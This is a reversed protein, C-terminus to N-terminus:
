FPQSEEIRDEKKEKVDPRYPETTVTGEILDGEM